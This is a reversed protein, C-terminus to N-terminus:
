TRFMCKTSKQKYICIMEFFSTAFTKKIKYNATKSKIDFHGYCILKFLRNEEDEMYVSPSTLKIDKWVPINANYKQNSPQCVVTSTWLNRVINSADTWSMSFDCSTGPLLVDIEFRNRTELMNLRKGSEDNGLCTLYIEFFTVYHVQSFRLIELADGM